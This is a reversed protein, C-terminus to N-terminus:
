RLILVSNQPPYCQFIKHQSMLYNNNLIYGTPIITQKGNDRKVTTFYKLLYKKKQLM